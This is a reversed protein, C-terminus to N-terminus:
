KMQAQAMEDFNIETDKATHPCVIKARLFRRADNIILDGYTRLLDRLMTFEDQTLADLDSHWENDLDLQAMVSIGNTGKDVWSGKTAFDLLKDLVGRVRAKSEAERADRAAQWESENSLIHARIREWKGGTAM